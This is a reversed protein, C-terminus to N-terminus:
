SGVTTLSATTSAWIVVGLVIMLAFGISIWGIIVGALAMGRGREGTRAIQRLAIHGTIVGVVVGLALVATWSLAVGVLSSVMSTVALGNTRPPPAYGAYGYAPAYGAQPAPYGGGPAYGPPAPYPGPAAGPPVPASYGPGYPPAVGPSAPLYGPAAYGPAPHGAAYPPLPAPAPPPTAADAASSPDQPPPPTPDSM